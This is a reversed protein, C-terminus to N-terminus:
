GIITKVYTTYDIMANLHERRIMEGETWEVVETSQTNIYQPEGNFSITEAM